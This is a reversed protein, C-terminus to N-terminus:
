IMCDLLRAERQGLKFPHKARSSTLVVFVFNRIMLFKNCYYVSSIMYCPLKVLLVNESLPSIKVLPMQQQTM